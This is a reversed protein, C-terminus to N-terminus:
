KAAKKKRDEQTRSRVTVMKRGLRENYGCQICIIAEAAMSAKCEPCRRASAAGSEGAGPVPRIGMEDFLEEMPSSSAGPTSGPPTGPLNAPTSQVTHRSKQQALPIKLPKKCGPCKVTKGALSAKASVVQGCACKVAMKVPTSAKANGASPVKASAQTRAAPIVVSQSCAPCKVKKGAYKEAAGFQKGCACKVRIPM